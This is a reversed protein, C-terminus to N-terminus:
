NDTMEGNIIIKNIEEFNYIAPIEKYFFFELNLIKGIVHPAIDENLSIGGGRLKLNYIGYLQFSDYASYIISWLIQNIIDVENKNDSTIMISISGENTVTYVPYNGVENNEEYVDGIMGAFSKDDSPHFEMDEIHITPTNAKEMDFGRRVSLFRQSGESEKRSLISVADNFYNLKQINNKHLLKYLKTKTKDNKSDLDQKLHSIIGNILNYVLVDPIINSSGISM